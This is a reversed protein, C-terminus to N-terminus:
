VIIGIHNFSPQNLLQKAEKPIIFKGNEFIVLPIAKPSSDLVQTTSINNNIQIINTGSKNNSSIGNEDIFNENEITQNINEVNKM